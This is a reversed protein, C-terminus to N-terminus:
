RGTPPTWYPYESLAKPRGLVEAAVIGRLISKRTEFLGKLVGTRHPTVPAHLIAPPPPAPPAPAVPAAIQAPPIPRMAAVPIPAVDPRPAARQAQQVAIQQATTLQPNAQPVAAQRSAAYAAERQRAVMAFYAQKRLEVEDAQAQAAQVDAANGPRAGAAAKKRISSVIGLGVIVVWIWPGISDLHM